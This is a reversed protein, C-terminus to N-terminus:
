LVLYRCRLMRWAQTNFWKPRAAEPETDYDIGLTFYYYRIYRLLGSPDNGGIDLDGTTMAGNPRESLIRYDGPDQTVLRVGPPSYDAGIKFTMLSSRAFSALEIVAMLLMGGCAIQRRSKALTFLSAGLFLCVAGEILSRIFHDRAQTVFRPDAFDVAQPLHMTSASLKTVVGAWWDLPRPLIAFGCLAIGAGALGVILWWPADRGRLMQDLGAGALMSLFLAALWLFKDMGRFLNFGPVYNFLLHFVPTYGGMALVLALILMSISFRRTARAGQAMGYVALALGIVSVFLSVETVYWRGWYPVHNGDGLFRPAVLTLLNEPPFSYSSAFDYSMGLSRVSERGEDLGTFLQVAGLSIGGIVIGALGLMVKGRQRVRALNLVAYIGAAVGMYFVYQPHGALIAMAVAFMGMLCPAAAPRDTLEDIALFLLPAWIM